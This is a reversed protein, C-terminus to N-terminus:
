LKIYLKDNSWVSRLSYVEGEYIQNLYFFSMATFTHCLSRFIHLSNREEDLGLYITLLALSLLLGGKRLYLRNTAKKKKTRWLENAAWHLVSGM